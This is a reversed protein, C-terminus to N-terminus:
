ATQRAVLTGKSFVTTPRSSEIVAEFARQVMEEFPQHITTLPPIFQSAAPIDDFGTVAVKGPVDIGADSLAHLAGMAIQDTV